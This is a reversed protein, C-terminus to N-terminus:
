SGREVTFTVGDGLDVVEGAGVVSAEGPHLRRAGEGPRSVHVGNTSDLDTVLVHDGEARVEAHTRSIDQQPSPVTVLRPLERNTVRAVQPARGLLVARDLTVVLGTSLVIRAPEVAAPTQFPGPVEDSAWSPLQDRIAALDSSLITLGDHDDASAAGLAPEAAPQVAPEAARPVDLADPVDILRHPAAHRPGSLFAEAAAVVEALDAAGPGDLLEDGPTALPDRDDAEDSWVNAPVDAVDPELEPELEAELEPEVEAELEPEVDRVAEAALPEDASAEDAVPVDDVADQVPEVVDDAAPAEVVPVEVVPVEIVPVDVVPVDIVAPAAPLDARPREVVPAAEAVPAVDADSLAVWVEAARVVGDTVPLASGEADAGSVRVSVEAVGDVTRESWTSVDGAHLVQDSAGTLVVEVDGRLAVHVRRGTVAVLAFPPLGTLGDRALVALAGVVGDGAADWLARVADDDVGPGVLAVFGPRVVATRDGTTYEPVTM